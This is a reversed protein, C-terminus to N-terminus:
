DRMLLKLAGEWEEKTNVGALVERGGDSHGVQIQRGGLDRVVRCPGVRAGRGVREALAGLARPSWIGVLPECFGDRNQFCTVPAQYERGLRQLATPTLFPYDCAIVLWTTEPQFHFAALLGAAPGASESPAPNPSLDYIIAINPKPALSSKTTTTSSASTTVATDTSLARLYDDLESDQALSLYINPAKPCAHTLLNIQHQYLPRGDPMKLLHKPSKMRTSKGGALILPTFTM